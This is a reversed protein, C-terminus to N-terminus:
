LYNIAETDPQDDSTGTTNIDTDILGVYKKININTSLFNLLSVHLLSAIVISLRERSYLLLLLLLLLLLNVNLLYLIHTYVPRYQHM